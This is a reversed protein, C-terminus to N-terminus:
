IVLCPISLGAFLRTRLLEELQEKSKM